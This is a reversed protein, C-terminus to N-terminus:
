DGASYDSVYEFSIKRMNKSDYRRDVEGGIRKESTGSELPIKSGKSPESMKM